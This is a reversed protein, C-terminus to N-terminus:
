KAKIALWPDTALKPGNATKILTTESRDNAYEELSFGNQGETVQLDIHVNFQNLEFLLTKAQATEIKPFNRVIIDLDSTENAMVIGTVLEYGCSGGIGWEYKHMIPAVSRLAQFVPLKQRDRDLDAWKQTKALEFPTTKSKVSQASVLASARQKKLRGRIGVPIMDNMQQGRRVVVFPAAILSEKAWQPLSNFDQLSQAEDLEILDHPLFKM